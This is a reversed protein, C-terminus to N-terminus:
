GSEVTTGNSVITFNEAHELRDTLIRVNGGSEGPYGDKGPLGNRNEDTGANRLFIHRNDKGSVDWRVPKSVNIYKSVVAINKGHWLQNKLDKDIQVSETACIQVEGVNKNEKLIKEVQELIESIVVHKGIVEVVFRNDIQKLHVKIEETSAM